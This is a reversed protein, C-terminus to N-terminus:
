AWPNLLSKLSAKFDSINRTVLTLEHVQAVFETRCRVLCYRELTTRRVSMLKSWGCQAGVTAVHRRRWVPVVVYRWGPKM